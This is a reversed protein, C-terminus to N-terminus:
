IRDQYPLNIKTTPVLRHAFIFSLPEPPIQIWMLACQMAIMLEM